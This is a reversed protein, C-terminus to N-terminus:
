SLRKVNAAVIRCYNDVVTSASGGVFLTQGAHQLAEVKETVMLIMEDATASGRAMMHLRLEIVRAADAMLTILPLIIM